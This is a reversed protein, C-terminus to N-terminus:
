HFEFIFNTESILNTLRRTNDQSGMNNHLIDKNLLNHNGQLHISNCAQNSLIGKSLIDLTNSVQCREQINFQFSAPVLQIFIGELHVKSLELLIGKLYKFISPTEVWEVLM